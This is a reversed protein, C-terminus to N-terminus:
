TLKYKATIESIEAKVKTLQEVLEIIKQKDTPSKDVSSGSSYKAIMKEAEEKYRMARAELSNKNFAAMLKDKSVKGTEEKGLREVTEITANQNSNFADFMSGIEDMNLNDFANPQKSILNGMASAFEGFKDKGLAEFLKTILLNDGGKSDFINKLLSLLNVAKDGYQAIGNRISEWEISKLKPAYDKIFEGLKETWGEISKFMIKAGSPIKSLQLYDNLKDKLGETSNVVKKSWEGLIGFLSGIGKGLTNNIPEIVVSLHSKVKNLTDKTGQDSTNLSFAVGVSTISSTGVLFVPKLFSSYLGAKLSPASVQLQIM